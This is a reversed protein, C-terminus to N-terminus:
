TGQHFVLYVWGSRRALDIVPLLKPPIDQFSNAMNLVFEWVGGERGNHVHAFSAELAVWRWEPIADPVDYEGVIDQMRVSGIEARTAGPFVEADHEGGALISLAQSAAGQADNLADHEADNSEPEPANVVDTLLEEIKGLDITSGDELTLIGGSLSAPCNLATITM